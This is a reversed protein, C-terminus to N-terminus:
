SVTINQLFKNFVEQRQFINCCYAGFTEQIARYDLAIEDEDSYELTDVLEGKKNLRKKFAIAGGVDDLHVIGGKFIRCTAANLARAIREAPLAKKGMRHQIVRLVLLAVFCILFHARIHENKSVFVPRAYLDSKMIRFSQEIRWLGGYVQRIKREDYKLESTIICFYGDLLADKEAKEIDVSRLKVIDELIEGTERDVVNEKTYEEVGKKIGYANNRVARAAKRLKEERKRRAM